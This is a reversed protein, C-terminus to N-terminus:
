TESGLSESVSEQESYSTSRIEKGSSLFGVEVSVGGGSREETNELRDDSLIHGINNLIGIEGLPFDDEHYKASKGLVRVEGIEGFLESLSELM